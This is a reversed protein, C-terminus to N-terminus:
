PTIFFLLQKNQHLNPACSLMKLRQQAGDAKQQLVAMALEMLYFYTQLEPPPKQCKSEKGDVVRVM